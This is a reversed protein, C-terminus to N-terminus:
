SFSGSGFIPPRNRDNVVVIVDLEAENGASDRATVTVKHNGSDDYTTQRRNSDMWGSFSVRVEDGEPDSVVPNLIVVDGENAEIPGALEISPAKNVAEVIVKVTTEATLDGDTAIILFEYEGADGLQTSWIGSANIPEEFEYRVTDGDPDKAAPKIIARQGEKIAIEDLSFITPPRNTNKVSVIVEKTTVSTGDSASIVVKHLGGDDFSVNKTNSNMWGSFSVTVNDGDPDSLTPNLTFLEGETAEIPDALEIIPAKNKPLVIILVQQEVTNAGDSATITVVQEGADGENTRWIGQENLPASFTYEIPDGDPDVAKLNPFSVTEGEVVEKRPLDKSVAAPVKTVNEVAVTENVEQMTANVDIVPETTVNQTQNRAPLAPACAVVFVLLLALLKGLNTFKM